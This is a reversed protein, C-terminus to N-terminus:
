LTKVKAPFRPSHKIGYHAMWEAEFRAFLEDVEDRTLRKQVPHGVLDNKIVAGYKNKRDMYFALM